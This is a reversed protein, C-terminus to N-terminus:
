DIVRVIIGSNKKKEEKKNVLISILVGCLLGTMAGLIASGESAWIYNAVAYFLFFLVLPVVYVVCALALVRSTKCEVDVSDGVQAGIPNKVQAVIPRAQAGCAGCSTCDHGCATERKISVQADGNPFLAIVKARQRM